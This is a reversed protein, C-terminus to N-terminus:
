RKVSNDLPIDQALKSNWGEDNSGDDERLVRRVAAMFEESDTRFISRFHRAEEEDTMRMVEERNGTLVM